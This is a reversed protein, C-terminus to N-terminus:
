INRFECRLNRLGRFNAMYTEGWRPREGFFVSIDLRFGQHGIYEINSGIRRVQFINYDTIEPNTGREGRITLRADRMSGGFGREVEITARRNDATRGTCEVENIFAFASFSFCLSLVLSLIKM